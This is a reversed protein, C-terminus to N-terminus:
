QTGNQSAIAVLTIDDAQPCCSQYTNIAAIVQDCLEQAPCALSARVVELLRESGFRVGELNIADTAGDTNLFLKGGAPIEIVQEDLSPNPLVGLLQGSCIPLPLNKGGADFLMPLEHGARSYLFRGQSADLVGYLVTVFMGAANMELLNKNVAQLVKAPSPSRRTEARLLSRVLAMFLAAPVGKDSVDGVVVGLRDRGLPIFDFFDGGVARAPLMRAGFGFGPLSPLSLPLMSEQIKRAVQLERELAEKEILQAQATKLEAYAQALERNKGRLEEIAASQADRLRLSLERVLEFGLDPQRHLLRSLDTHTMQLLQSDSRVRVGATRRGERDFMSTEGLFKGPGHVNALHEGEMGMRIIVELQGSLIIYFSDGPQGEEFLVEGAPLELFRMTDILQLLEPRSFSAFLPMGSLVQEILEIRSASL